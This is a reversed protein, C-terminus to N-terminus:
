GKKKDLKIKPLVMLICHLSQLHFHSNREYFLQSFTLILVKLLLEIRKHQPPAVGLGLTSKARGTKKDGEEVIDYVILNSIYCSIM